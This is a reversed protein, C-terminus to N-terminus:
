VIIDTLAPPPPLASRDSSATSARLDSATILHCSPDALCELVKRVVHGGFAQVGRRVLPRFIANLARYLWDDSDARIYFDLDPLHIEIDAASPQLLNLKMRLGATANMSGYGKNHWFKTWIGPETANYKWDFDASIRADDFQMDLHTGNFHWPGCTMSRPLVVQTVNAYVDVEGITPAHVKMPQIVKMGLDVMATYQLLDNVTACAGEAQVKKLQASITSRVEHQVIAGIIPESHSAVWGAAADLWKHAASDLHIDLSDVKVNAAKETESQTDIAMELSAVLFGTAM